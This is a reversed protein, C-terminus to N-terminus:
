TTYRWAYSCEVVGFLSIDINEASVKVINNSLM